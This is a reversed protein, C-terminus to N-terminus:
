PVHPGAGGPTLGSSWSLWAFSVYFDKFIDFDNSEFWYHASPRTLSM